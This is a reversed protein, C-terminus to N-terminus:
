GLLFGLGISYFTYGDVIAWFVCVYIYIYIHNLDHLHMRTIYPSKQAWTPWSIPEAQRKPDGDASVLATDKISM